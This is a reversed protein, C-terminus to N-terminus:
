DVIQFRVADPVFARRHVSGSGYRAYRLHCARIAKLCLDFFADAGGNAEVIAQGAFAELAAARSVRYAMTDSVSHRASIRELRFRISAGPDSAPSVRFRWYRCEPGERIEEQLRFLLGTKRDIWGSEALELSVRDVIKMDFIPDILPSVITAPEEEM